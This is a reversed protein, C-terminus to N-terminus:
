DVNCRGESRHRRWETMTVYGTSCDSCYYMGRSEEVNKIHSLVENLVESIRYETSIETVEEHLGFYTVMSPVICVHKEGQGAGRLMMNHVEIEKSYRRMDRCKETTGDTRDNAQYDWVGAQFDTSRVITVNTPLDIGRSIRSGPYSTIAYGIGAVDDYHSREANSNFFYSAPGLRQHTKEARLGSGAFIPHPIREEALKKSVDTMFRRREYEDGDDCAVMLIKLDELDTDEAGLDKYEAPKDYKSAFDKAMLDGVLWVNEANEFAEKNVLFDSTPDPIVRVDYKEGSQIVQIEPNFFAAELAQSASFRHYDMRIRDFTASQESVPGEFDIQGPEIDRLYEIYGDTEPGDAFDYDIATQVLEDLWECANKVNRYRSAVRELEDIKNQERSLVNSVNEETVKLDVTFAPGVLSNSPHIEALKFGSPRFYGQTSEEDIIVQYREPFTSSGTIRYFMQAVCVITDAHEMAFKSAYYACADKSRFSSPQVVDNKAAVDRAANKIRNFASGGLEHDCEDSCYETARDKGKPIVVTDPSVGYKGGSLHNGVTEDIQEYNNDIIIPVGGSGDTYSEFAANIGKTTKRSFRPPGDIIHTHRRTHFDEGDKLDTVGFGGTKGIRREFAENFVEDIENISDTIYLIPAGKYVFLHIYYPKGESTDIIPYGRKNAYDIHRFPSNTNVLEIRDFFTEVDSIFREEFDIKVTEEDVPGNEELWRDSASQLKEVTM